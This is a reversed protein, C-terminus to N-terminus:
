AVSKVAQELAGYDVSSPQTMGKPGQMVLTPTGSAGAAAALHADASIQSSLSGATRASKWTSFSLGPVQKALGDLYNENVYGSGEAGQEHYFLEVYNWLRQQQGAALAAVQQTQFTQPDHTASELSRYVVKVRGARVDNSVLQKFSSLTFAQCVPCELDGYYYMTVPAKPNGLRTGSQPIGALLSQVSAVTQAAKTGTQLGGKKGGGSSIAIAVVLVLVTGIMVGGVKRLRRERREREARAQEDALRRARAHERQATRSTM